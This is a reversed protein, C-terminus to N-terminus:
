RGSFISFTLWNDRFYYLFNEYQALIYSPARLPFWITFFIFSHFFHGCSNCWQSIESSYLSVLLKWFSFVNQFFLICKELVTSWLLILGGWLLLSSASLCTLLIRILTIKVKVIGHRTFSIILHLLLIFSRNKIWTRLFHMCAQFNM